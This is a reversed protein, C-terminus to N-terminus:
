AGVRLPLPTPRTTGESRVQGADAITQAHANQFYRALGARKEEDLFSKEALLLLTALPLVQGRQRHPHHTRM